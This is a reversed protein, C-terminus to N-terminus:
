SRSALIYAKRSTDYEMLDPWRKMAVNLDLSAQPQSIAFKKEIHSRNIAGFIEVSEKIWELRREKFWDSM